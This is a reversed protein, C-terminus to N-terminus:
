EWDPEQKAKGKGKRCLLPISTSAPKTAASKPKAAARKRKAPPPAAPLLSPGPLGFIGGGLAPPAAAPAPLLGLAGPPPAAALAGLRALLGQYAPAAIIPPIAIRPMAVPAVGYNLLAANNEFEVVYRPVVLDVYKVVYVGGGPQTWSEYSDRGLPLPVSHSVTPTSRGTIVRCMFMRTAGQAYGVSTSPNTALYVGVGCAAGHAQRAGPSLGPVLFGSAVSFGAQLIPQINAEATGHFLNKETTDIGLSNLLAKAAEFRAELNANVFWQVTKVKLGAALAQEFDRKVLDLHAANDPDDDGEITKGEADIIVHYVIGDDPVDKSQALKQRKEAMKADMEQLRAILRLSKGEIEAAQQQALEDEEEWKEAACACRCPRRRRGGAAASGQPDQSTSLPKRPTPREIIEIFDDDADSDIWIVSAAAAVAMGSSVKVQCLQHVVTEASKRTKYLAQGLAKPRLAMVTNRLPLFPKAQASTVVFLIRRKDATALTPNPSEPFGFRPERAANRMVLRAPVWERCEFRSPFEEVVDGRHVHRWRRRCMVNNASGNLTCVTKHLVRTCLGSEGSIIRVHDQHQHDWDLDAPNQRQSYVVCGRGRLERERERFRRLEDVRLEGVIGAMHHQRLVCIADLREARRPDSSGRRRNGSWTTTRLYIENPDQHFNFGSNVSKDVCYIKVLGPLVDTGYSNM